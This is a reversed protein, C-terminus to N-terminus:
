KEPLFTLRGTSVLVREDGRRLVTWVGQGSAGRGEYDLVRVPPHHGDLLARRPFHESM